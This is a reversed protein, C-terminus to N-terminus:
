GNRVPKGKATVRGVLRYEAYVHRMGPWRGAEVVADLDRGSWETVLRDGQDQFAVFLLKPPAKPGRKRQRRRLESRSAM